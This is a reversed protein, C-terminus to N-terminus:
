KQTHVHPAMFFPFSDAIPQSRRGCSSFPTAAFATPRGSLSKRASRSSNSRADSPDMRTSRSESRSRFDDEAAGIWSPKGKFNTARSSPRDTRAERQVVLKEARKVDVTLQEPLSGDLSFASLVQLIQQSNRRSSHNEGSQLLEFPTLM